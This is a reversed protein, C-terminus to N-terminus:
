LRQHLRGRLGRARLVTKNVGANGRPIEPVIWQKFERHGDPVMVWANPQIQPNSLDLRNGPFSVIDDIKADFKAAVNTLQDGAQWQYLVGNTPPIKLTMGPNLMDPNDNLQDYNAWLISEPELSYKQAIGFISDGTSVTYDIADQRSRTPIITHLLARRPIANVLTAQALAPLDVVENVPGPQTPVVAQTSEVAITAPAATKIRLTWGLYAAFFVLGLAILWAGGLILREAISSAAGKKGGKQAGAASLEAAETQKKPVAHKLPSPNESM